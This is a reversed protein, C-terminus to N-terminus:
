APNLTENARVVMVNIGPFIGFPDKATNIVAGDRNPYVVIALLIRQAIRVFARDKKNSLQLETGVSGVLCELRRRFATRRFELM